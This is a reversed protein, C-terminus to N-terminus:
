GEVEKPTADPLEAEKSAELNGKLVENQPLMEPPLECTYVFNVEDM